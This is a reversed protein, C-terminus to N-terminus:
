ETLFLIQVPVWAKQNWSRRYNERATVQTLPTLPCDRTEQKEWVM